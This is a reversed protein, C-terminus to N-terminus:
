PRCAAVKYKGGVPLGAGSAVTCQFAFGSGLAVFATCGLGNPATEFSDLPAGTLGILRVFLDQGTTNAKICCQYSDIAPTVFEYVEMAMASSVNRPNSLASICGGAPIDGHLDKYQGAIAGAGSFLVMALTMLVALWGAMLLRM